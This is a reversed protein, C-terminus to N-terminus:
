SRGPVLASPCFCFRSTELLDVHDLFSGQFHLPDPPLPTGGRLRGSCHQHGATATADSLQTWSEHSGTSQQGGPEETWPIKWAPIGSHTAMEEQLPGEPGLGM